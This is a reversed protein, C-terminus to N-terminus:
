GREIRSQKQGLQVFEAHELCSVRSVQHQQFRVRQLINPVRALDRRYNLGSFVIRSLLQVLHQCPHRFCCSALSNHWPQLDRALESEHVQRYMEVM